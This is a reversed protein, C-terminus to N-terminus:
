KSIPKFTNFRLKHNQKPTTSYKSKSVQQYQDIPTTAWNILSNSLQKGWQAKSSAMPMTYGRYQNYSWHSSFKALCKSNKFAHYQSGLINPNLSEFQTTWGKSSWQCSSTLCPINLNHIFFLELTAMSGDNSKVGNIHMQLVIWMVFKIPEYLFQV